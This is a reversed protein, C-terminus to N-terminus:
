IFRVLTDEPFRKILDDALAQARAADGALALAVAATWRRMGTKSLGSPRWLRSGRRPLIASYLKVYPRMPKMVRQKEKAGGQEAAAVAKQALGRAKGLRGFYAATDAENSLMLDEM